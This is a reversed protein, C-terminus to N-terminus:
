SASLLRLTPDAARALAPLLVQPSAPRALVWGQAFGVGLRALQALDATTEVGEAVLATGTKSCFGIMVEVLAQRRPCEGVGQVLGLDLKVVDPELHLVHQLSSHGAGFDDIGLGIGRERLTGLVQLLAPYDAVPEHETLEVVLRADAAELLLEQVAPRLLAQSSLNVTLRLPHPLLPLLELAGCLALQELEPGRGDRLASAFWQAPGPQPHGPFRALAEVGWVDGTDLGVIPQLHVQLAQLGSLVGTVAGRDPPAAVTLQPGTLAAPV